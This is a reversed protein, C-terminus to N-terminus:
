ATDGFSIYYLIGVTIPFYILWFFDLSKVLLHSGETQIESGGSVLWTVQSLFSLREM